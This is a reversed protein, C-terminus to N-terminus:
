SRQTTNTESFRLGDRTRRLAAHRQLAVLVKEAFKEMWRVLKPM